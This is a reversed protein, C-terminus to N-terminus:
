RLYKREYPMNKKILYKHNFAWKYKNLDKIKIFKVEEVENEEGGKSSLNEEYETFGKFRFTVNQKEDLKDNYNIFRLNEVIVGTEEYVERQAAQIVTEDWDLYGCPCNWYGNFNPTGKGRKNALIYWEGKHKAYVFVVVCVSRSIWYTEGETSTIQFNPTSM